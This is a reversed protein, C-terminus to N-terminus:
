PSVLAEVAKTLEEGKLGRYRIIGQADILLTTPFDLIGWDLGLGESDNGSYLNDWTHGQSQVSQMFTRKREDNAVGLVHLGSAGYDAHLQRVELALPRSIAGHNNWFLMLTPRGKLSQQTIVNGMVDEGQFNPLPQGPQLKEVFYRLRPLITAVTTNPFDKEIRNLVALLSESSSGGLLNLRYQTLLLQSACRADTVSNLMKNTVPAVSSLKWDPDENAARLFEETLAQVTDWRNPFASLRNVLSARKAVKLSGDLDTFDIKELVWAMADPDSQEALTQFKPMFLDVPFIASFDPNDSMMMEGYDADAQQYEAILAAFAVSQNNAEQAVAPMALSIAFLLIYFYKM